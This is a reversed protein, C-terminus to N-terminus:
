KKNNKNLEKNVKKLSEKREQLSATQTALDKKTKQLEERLDQNEKKLKEIEDENSAIDESLDTRQKTLESVVKTKEEVRNQYYEPLYSDLFDLVIGRLERYEQYYDNRNIVIDYGFSGLVCMQTKDQVPIVKISLDMAKESVTPITVKEATLVDKNTLFGIGKLKVDYQDDLFDKFEKKVDKANPEITTEICPESKDGITMTGSNVSLLQANLISSFGLTCIFFLIGLNLHRLM